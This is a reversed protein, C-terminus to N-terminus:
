KCSKAVNINVKKSVGLVHIKTKCKVITNVCQNQCKITDVSTKCCTVADITVKCCTITEYTLCQTVCSPGPCCKSPTKCTKGKAAVVAPAAKVAPPKTVQLVASSIHGSSMIGSSIIGSSPPGGSNLLVKSKHDQYSNL